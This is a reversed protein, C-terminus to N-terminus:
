KKNERYKELEQMQRIFEDTDSEKVNEPTQKPIFVDGKYDSKSKRFKELDQMQQIFDNTEKDKVNEPTETTKGATIDSLAQQHRQLEQLVLIEQENTM